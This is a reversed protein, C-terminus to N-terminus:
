ALMGIRIYVHIYTCVNALINGSNPITESYSWMLIYYLLLPLTVGEEVMRRVCSFWIYSEWSFPGPALIHFLPMINKTFGATDKLVDHKRFFFWM